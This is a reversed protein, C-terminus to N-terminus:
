IHMNLIPAPELSCPTVIKWATRDQPRQTLAPGALPGVDVLAIAAAGRGVGEEGEPEIMANAGHVGGIIIHQQWVLGRDLGGSIGGSGFDGHHLVGNLGLRRAFDIGPDEGCIEPAGARHIKDGAAARGGDDGALIPIAQQDADGIGGLSIGTGDGDGELAAGARHHGRIGADGDVAQCGGKLERDTHAPSEEDLSRNIANIKHEQALHPRVFRARHIGARKGGRGVPM